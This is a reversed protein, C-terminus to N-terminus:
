VKVSKCRVGHDFKGIWRGNKKETAEVMVKALVNVAGVVHRERTLQPVNCAGVGEGVSRRRM